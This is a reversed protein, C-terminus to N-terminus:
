ELLSMVENKTSRKRNLFYEDSKHGITRRLVVEDSTEFSLRNDLNDFVLEVFANVTASGSGEHLRTQREETHLSYFEPSLLVFQVADFLNSKGSGNRGVVVNTGASFQFTTAEYQTTTTFM